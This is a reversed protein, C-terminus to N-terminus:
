SRASTPSATTTATTPSTTRSTGCTPIERQDPCSASLTLRFAGASTVTAGANVTGYSTSPTVLTVFPDATSITANVSTAIAGGSNTVPIRLDITEGADWIGDADGNTGGLADDDITPKGDSLVAVM